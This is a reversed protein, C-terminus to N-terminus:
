KTTEIPLYKKMLIYYVRRLNSIFNHKEKVSNFLFGRSPKSKEKIKEIIAERINIKTDYFLKIEKEKKELLTLKTISKLSDAWKFKEVKYEFNKYVWPCNFM